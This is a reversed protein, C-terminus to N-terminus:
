RAGEYIPRLAALARVIAAALGPAMGEVKKPDDVSVNSLEVAVAPEAISRLGRVAFTSSIEPSGKFKQSIEVQLVDALRRSFEARSKQATNWPTWGAPVPAASSAAPNPTASPAAQPPNSFEYSYARATGVVGTSSVHFSIFVASPRANAIAARDEFSPNQDNDRTM